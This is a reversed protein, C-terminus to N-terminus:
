KQSVSWRLHKVPNQIHRQIVSITKGHDKSPYGPVDVYAWFIM